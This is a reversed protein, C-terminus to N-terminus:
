VYDFKSSSLLPLFFGPHPWHDDVDAEGKTEGLSDFVRVYLKNLM